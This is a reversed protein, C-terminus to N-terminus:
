PLEAVSVLVRRNLQRRPVHPGDGRLNHLMLSMRSVDCHHDLLDSRCLLPLKIRLSRSASAPPHLSLSLSLSHNCPTRNVSNRAGNEEMSNM